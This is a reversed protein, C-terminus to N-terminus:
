PPFNARHFDAQVVLSNVGALLSAALFGAPAHDRAKAKYNIYIVGVCHGFNSSWPVRLLPNVATGTMCRLAATATTLVHYNRIRGLDNM